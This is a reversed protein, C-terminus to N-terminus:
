IFVMRFSGWLLRVLSPPLNYGYSLRVFGFPCWLFVFGFASPGVLPAIIVMRFCQVFMHFGYSCWLFVFGFASPGVLPVIVIM